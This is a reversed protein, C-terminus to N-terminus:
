IKLDPKLLSSNAEPTELGQARSEVARELTAIRARDENIVDGLTEALNKIAKSLIEDNHRLDEISQSNDGLANELKLVKNYVFELKETVNQKEMIGSGSFVNKRSFVSQM